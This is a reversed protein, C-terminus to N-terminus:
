RANRGPLAAMPECTNSTQQYLNGLRTKARHLRSKVTGEAIGLAAAADRTSFEEVVCLTLVDRDLPKLQTFANRLSTSEIDRQAAELFDEAIDTSDDPPPLRSLLARYRRQQRTQNRITNNAVVLLWPAMSGNVVRVDARRRWAEYFVMAVVDEAVHASAVIRLAHGLVRKRHRDFLVGFADGDGTAVMRWLEEDSADIEWSM